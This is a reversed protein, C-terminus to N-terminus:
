PRRRLNRILVGVSVILAVILGLIAFDVPVLHFALMAANYCRMFVGGAGDALQM